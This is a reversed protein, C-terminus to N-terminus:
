KKEKVTGDIYLTFFKGEKTKVQASKKFYGM